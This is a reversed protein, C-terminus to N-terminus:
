RLGLLVATPAATESEVCTRKDALVDLRFDAVGVLAGSRTQDELESEDLWPARQKRHGIRTSLTDLVALFRELAALISWVFSVFFVGVEGRCRSVHVM